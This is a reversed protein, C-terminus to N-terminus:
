GDRATARAALEAVTVPIPEDRQLATEVELVGIAPLLRDEREVVTGV